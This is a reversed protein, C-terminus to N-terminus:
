KGESTMALSVCLSAFYIAKYQSRTQHIRNGSGVQIESPEDVELVVKASVAVLTAMQLHAQKMHFEISCSM